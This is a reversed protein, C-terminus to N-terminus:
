NTEQIERASVLEVTSLRKIVPNLRRHEVKTLDLLKNVKM